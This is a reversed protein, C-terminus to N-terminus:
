LEHVKGLEMIAVNHLDANQLQKIVTERYMPKINIIYVPYERHELKELEGKLRGPTLHDSVRALDVM